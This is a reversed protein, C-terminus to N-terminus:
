YASLEGFFIIMKQAIYSLLKFPDPGIQVFDLVQFGPRRHPFLGLFESAFSWFFLFGLGLRWKSELTEKSLALKISASTLHGLSALLRARFEAVMPRICLRPNTNARLSSENDESFLGIIYYDTFDRKLQKMDSKVKQATLTNGCRSKGVLSSRRTPQLDRRLIHTM